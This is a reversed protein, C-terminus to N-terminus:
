KKFMNIIKSTTVLLFFVLFNPNIIQKTYNQM